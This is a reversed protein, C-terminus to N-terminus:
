SAISLPRLPYIVQNKIQEQSVMERLKLHQIKGSTTRPITNKKVLLVRSPRIKHQQYIQSIIHGSIERATHYAITDSQLEAIIILRQTGIRDNYLGIAASYRVGAVQDVVSELDGPFINRGARIILEKERGVIFLNGTEDFYGLDGTRLWGDALMIEKTKERNNWYGQFNGLGKVVVEGVEKDSLERNDKVIRVEVGAIPKGVSVINRIPDFKVEQGPEGIAVALTAEALGYAPCIINKLGFRNEFEKITSLRVSEAGSIAVRLSSLDLGNIDSVKKLCNRYGFDPSGTITAKHHTIAELWTRPNKLDPPLLVLTIGYCLAGLGFGILGMDHYIPLWSVLIDKSNIRLRKGFSQINALLNYHSLVVGKPNGTSGSTYQILAIDQGSISPLSPKNAPKELTEAFIIQYSITSHNQATKINQSLWEHVIAAAPQCDTIINLLSQSSLIPYLPVPIAGLALLGFFAYFFEPGAVLMLCVRDGKEIGMSEMNAAYQYAKEALTPFSIRQDQFILYVQEAGYQARIQMFDILTEAWIREEMKKRWNESNFIRVMIM